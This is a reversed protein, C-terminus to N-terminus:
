AGRGDTETYANRMEKRYADLDGIQGILTTWRAHLDPDPGDYDLATIVFKRRGGLDTFTLMSPSKVEVETTSVFHQHGTEADEAMWIGGDVVRAWTVLLVQDGDLWLVAGRATLGDLARQVNSM